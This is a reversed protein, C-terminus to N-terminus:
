AVQAALATTEIVENIGATKKAPAPTARSTPWQYTNATISEILVFGDTYSKSLLVGGSSADLMNKSSPTLGNYLTEFQICVPIGHHPCQRLMEKYRE